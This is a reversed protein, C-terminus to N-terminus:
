TEVKRYYYVAVKSQTNSGENNSIFWKAFEFSEIGHSPLTSVSTLQHLQLTYISELKWQTPPHSEDVTRIEILTEQLVKDPIQQSPALDIHVMCNCALKKNYNTLWNITKLM